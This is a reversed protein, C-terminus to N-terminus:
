IVKFASGKEYKQDLKECLTSRKYKKKNRQTLKKVRSCTRACVKSLVNLLQSYIIITSLEAYYYFLITFIKSENKKEPHLLTTYKNQRTKSYGQNKNKKIIM